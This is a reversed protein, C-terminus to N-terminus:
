RRFVKGISANKIQLGFPVYSSDLVKTGKNFNDLIIFAMSIADIVDM